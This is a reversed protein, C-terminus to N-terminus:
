DNWSATASSTPRPQRRHPGPRARDGDFMAGTVTTGMGDLSPDAEVLDAIRDNAKHIAGALVELM